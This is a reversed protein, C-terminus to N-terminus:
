LTLSQRTRRMGDFTEFQLSWIVPGHCDLRGHTKSRTFTQLVYPFWAIINQGWTAALRETVSVNASVDSEDVEEGTRTCPPNRKSPPKFRYPESPGALQDLESAGSNSDLICEQELNVGNATNQRPNHADGAFARMEKAVTGAASPVEAIVVAPEVVGRPDISRDVRICSTSVGSNAVRTLPLGAAAQAYSCPM